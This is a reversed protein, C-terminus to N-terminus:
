VHRGGEHHRTPAHDVQDAPGQDPRCRSGEELIDVLHRTRLSRKLSEQADASSIRQMFSRCLIGAVRSTDTDFTPVHSKIIIFVLLMLMSNAATWAPATASRQASGGTAREACCPASAREIVFLEHQHHHQHHHHRHGEQHKRVSAGAISPNCATGGVRPCRHKGATKLDSFRTPEANEM